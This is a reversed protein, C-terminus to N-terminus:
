EPKLQVGIVSKGNVTIPCDDWSIYRGFDETLNKMMENQFPDSSIFAIKKPKPTDEDLLIDALVSDGTLGSSHQPELYFDMLLTDIKILSFLPVALRVNRITLDVDIGEVHQDNKDDDVMVVLPRDDMEIISRSRKIASVSTEIRVCDQEGSVENCYARATLAPTGDKHSCNTVAGKRVQYALQKDDTAYGATGETNLVVHLITPKSM